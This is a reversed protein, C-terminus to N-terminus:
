RGAASANLWEQRNARILRAASMQRPNIAGAPTFIAWDALLEVPHQRRDGNRLHSINFPDNTLTADIWDDGLAHVQFWLYEHDGGGDIEYALKVLIPLDIGVLESWLQRLVGYTGRAREAMLASASNSFNILVADPIDGALFRSPRYPKPRFRALLGPQPDCLVVHGDRHFEDVLHAFRHVVATEGKAFFRHSGVLAVEGGPYVLRYPKDGEKAIGDVIAFAMARVVDFFRWTNLGPSADFVDFDVYGIERLGHTHMWFGDGSDADPDAGDRERGVAPAEQRATAALAGTEADWLKASVLHVALIGDIDLPADHALEMELMAPTWVKLAPEDVVAAGYEGLCCSLFRLAAKRDVLVNGSRGPAFLTVSATARFAREREEQTIMSQEFLVPPPIVPKRRASLEGHGWSPHSVRLAWYVDPSAPIEDTKCGALLQRIQAVTPPLPGPFLTASTVKWWQAAAM